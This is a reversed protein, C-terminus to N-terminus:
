KGKLKAPTRNDDLTQTVSTFDLKVKIHDIYRQLFESKEKPTKLIERFKM